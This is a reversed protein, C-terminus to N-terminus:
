TLRLPLDRLRKGTAAFVANAIAPAIPPVGPEGAGGPEEDSNHVYVEIDPSENMRILPYDHFNSQQVAGNQLSISGYLAATLGFVVGGEMQMKVIDPNITKGCDIAVVVKHLQITGNNIRLEVLQAVFSGFSFHCAVGQFLDPQSPKGWSGQEAVRKLVEAMRPNKNLHDLRFQVPDREALLALEDMFSEIAFANFSHGVSRWYGTRLGPDIQVHRVEAHDCDYGYEIAGETSAPDMLMTGYVFPGLNATARVLGDPLWAPLVATAFEQFVYPLINPNVNKQYWGTLQGQQNIGAKMVTHAAPRYYDNQMDDTRSFVLKIPLGSQKAIHTAEMVYDASLRRGFGGGLLTTNIEIQHRRLGTVEEAISACVPPVQTPVWIQCRDDSLVVTCNMPEMTAHALYPVRYEASLQKWSEAIEDEADGKSLAARGNEHSAAHALQQSVDKTSSKALEPLEWEVSVKQLAQQAHWFTDAIVAIGTQIQVVQAVRPSSEAGNSQWSRVTGGIVPCRKLVAVKLDPLQTDIGYKATGKVKMAGDLRITPKGIFRFASRPKLTVDPRPRQSAQHVFNGFPIRNGQVVVHANEAVCQGPEVQFQEAASLLIMERAQAACVRLSDFYIRTSTSGGTVQVGYFPNVYDPHLGASKITILHAETNLEEAILTTMGTMSGQGMEISNLYFIINNEPTIQLWANPEFDASDTHPFPTACGTLSFDLILGGGVIGISKLFDRRNQM